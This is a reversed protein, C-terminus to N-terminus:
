YTVEAQYPVNDASGGSGYIEYTVNVRYKGTSSLSFTRTDNYKYNYITDVWEENPQGNDVRNWFLGLVKKEVYTTIVIKTTKKSYGDVNYSITLLGNDNVNCYTRVIKTNNYLPIIGNKPLNEASVPIISTVSLCLMLTIVLIKKIQKKM